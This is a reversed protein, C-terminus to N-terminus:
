AALWRQMGVAQGRPTSPMGENCRATCLSVRAHRTSACTPLRPLLPCSSMLLKCVAQPRSAQQYPIEKDPDHMGQRGHHRVLSEANAPSFPPCSFITYFFFSPKSLQASGNNQNTPQCNAIVTQLFMKPHGKRGVWDIM